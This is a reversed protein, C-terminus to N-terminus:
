KIYWEYNPNTEFEKIVLIGKKMALYIDNDKIFANSLKLLGLKLESKLIQKLKLKKDFSLIYQNTIMYISGNNFFSIIPKEILRKIHKYKWKKKDYFIEILRGPSNFFIGGGQFAFIRKNFEFIKIIDRRYRIVNKKYDITDKYTEVREVKKLKKLKNNKRISVFYLHDGIFENGKVGVLYGNHVKKVYKNGYLKLKNNSFPLTDGNSREFNNKIIEVSDNVIKFYWRNKSQSAKFLKDNKIFSLGDGIPLSDKKWQSLNIEQGYNFNASLLVLFLLKKM